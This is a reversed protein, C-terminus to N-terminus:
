FISLCFGGETCGLRALDMGYGVGLWGAGDQLRVQRFAFSRGEESVGVLKRFIARNPDQRM